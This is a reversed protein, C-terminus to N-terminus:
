KGGKLYMVNLDVGGSIGSVLGSDSMQWYEYDGKYSTKSIYHALWVPYGIDYWINELYTKSSYLYGKYGANSVTDLFVKANNSLNYLSLHYSNYNAWNEWDFFVGLEVNYDKIQDIVWKADDISNDKNNTYSYYYVGVPIGVRNFGEINRKFKSDLYHENNANKSGVRIIAFEVGDSKVKDLDIDGQWFSVDIGVKTNDNKYNDILDSFKIYNRKSNGSSGSSPKIVNLTFSKSNENGYKDTAVYKLNYKGTRKTNYDGEIKCSPEDDSDDLRMIKNCLDGSFNTNVTYSGSLWIKPAVIDVVNIDYSYSVVIGDENKYKFDVKKVGVSSSDIIYDDIIEGNIYDIYESIKHKTNFPINLDSKLEVVIKANKVKNDEIHKNILKFSVFSFFGILIFIAILTKYKQM